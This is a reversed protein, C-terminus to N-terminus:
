VVTCAGIAAVNIIVIPKIKMWCPCIICNYFYGMDKGYGKDKQKLLGDKM